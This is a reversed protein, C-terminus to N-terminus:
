IAFELREHKSKLQQKLFIIKAVSMEHELSYYQFLLKKQIVTTRVLLARMM